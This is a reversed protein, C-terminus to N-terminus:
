SRASSTPIRGTQSNPPRNQAAAQRPVGGDPARGAVRTQPSIQTRQSERKAAMEAAIRKRMEARKARVMGPIMFADAFHWLARIGGLCAVVFMVGDLDATTNADLIAFAVGPLFLGIQLFASRKRGLYFRHAGVAYIGLLWWLYTWLIKPGERRVRQEVREKFPDRPAQQKAPKPETEKRRRALDTLSVEQLPKLAFIIVIALFILKTLIAVFYGIFLAPIWGIGVGLFFGFESIAYIWGVIFTLPGVILSIIPMALWLRPFGNAGRTVQRPNPETPM